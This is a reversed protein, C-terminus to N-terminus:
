RLALGCLEVKEEKDRAASACNAIKRGTAAESVHQFSRLRALYLGLPYM